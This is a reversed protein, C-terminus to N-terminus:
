SRSNQDHLANSQQQRKTKRGTQQNTEDGPTENEVQDKAAIRIRSSDKDQDGLEWTKGPQGGHGPDQGPLNNTRRGREERNRGDGQGEALLEGFVTLSLELRARLHLRIAEQLGQACAHDKAFEPCGGLGGRVDAGGELFERVAEDHCWGPGAFAHAVHDRVREEEVAADNDEVHLALNEFGGGPV